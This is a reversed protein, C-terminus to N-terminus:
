KSIWCRYASTSGGAWPILTNRIAGCSSSSGTTDSWAFVVSDVYENDDTEDTLSLTSFAIYIENYTPLRGGYTSFCDMIANQCNDSGEEADQICGLQRGQSEVSTFGSPCEIRFGGATVNGLVGLNKTFQGEGHVDLEKAPTDTGIGVRGSNYYIDPSNESWLSGSTAGDTYWVRVEGRAGEGGKPSGTNSLSTGGGGGGPSTGDRGYNSAYNNGVSSGGFGGHPTHGGSTSYTTIASGSGGTPGIGHRAEGGDINIDGGSASGGLASPYVASTGGKGGGAIVAADFSSDGGDIGQSGGSGVVVSKTEGPAVDMFKAAYAGGGGGGGSTSDVGGGGGGWVEVFIKTVGAPVTFTGDSTFVDVNTWGSGGESGGGAGIDTYNFCNLGEPDCYQSAGINGEVHLKLLSNPTSTGIGVINRIDTPYTINGTSNWVSNSITITQADSGDNFWVKVEGRFGDGGTQAGTSGGVGWKAGSGGAGVAYADTGSAATGHLPSGDLTGIGIIPAAGGSAKNNYNTGQGTQGAEGILNIDCGSGQGGAGGSVADYYAGNTGGSGGTASCYSGFSSTEGNGGNGGSVGSGGAGITVTIEQGPTVEIFEAGYGGGGGGAGFSYTESGAGGGAGGSGWVEVFVKTVGAPVTFAGDSIFVEVNNWGGSSLNVGGFVGGGGGICGNVDCIKGSANVNGSSDVYFISSINLENKGFIIDGANVFVTILALVAIAIVIKSIPM